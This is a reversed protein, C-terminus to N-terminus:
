RDKAANGNKGDVKRINNVLYEKFKKIISILGYPVFIACLLVVGCFIFWYSEGLSRLMEPLLTVLTAGAVCGGISGIGGVMLMMIYKVSLESVFEDPGIFGALTSYLAGGICGYIAAMTFAKIKISSIKIGCTEASDPNDKIAKFARGWKSKLIRLSVFVMIIFIFLILYYFAKSYRGITHGFFVFEPISKVGLPGGTFKIMNTLLLRVVEAFSLTTLVLYIGSVRLSPYGLALGIICGMLLAAILGLWPSIGLKTTLLASTYAGLAFMGATGTNMQGVLGTIFNLGIVVIANILVKDVLLQHYNNKILLPLLILIAIAGIAKSSSYIKSKNLEM